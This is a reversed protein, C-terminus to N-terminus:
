PQVYRGCATEFRIRAQHWSMVAEVVEARARVSELEAALKALDGMNKTEAIRTAQQEARWRALGVQRAQSEMLVVASRVEDAVQRERSAILDALRQRMIAVQARAVADIEAAKTQHHRGLTSKIATRMAKSDTTTDSEGGRRTRLLEAVAPLTEPNLRIYVLRLLSLDPRNSLATQVAAPVDVPDTTVGFDADPWLRDSMQGSLGIRRKLSINLLESGSEARQVLGILTARQSDLEDPTVPVIVGQSHAEATQQRLQDLIAVASRLLKGRGEADALRFFEDLALGASTNRATADVYSRAEDLLARTAVTCNECRADEWWVSSVGVEFPDPPQPFARAAQQCTAQSLRRYALQTSTVSVTLPNIIPLTAYDPELSGPEVRSLEPAPTSRPGPLSEEVPTHFHVTKCGVALIAPLLAASCIWRQVSM